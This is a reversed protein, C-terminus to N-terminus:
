ARPMAQKFDEGRSGMTMILIGYGMDPYLGM